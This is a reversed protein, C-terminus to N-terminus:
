FTRFQLKTNPICVKTTSQDNICSPGILSEKSKRSDVLLSPLTESNPTTEPSQVSQFRWKLLSKVSKSIVTSQCPLKRLNLNIGYMRIASDPSKLFILLESSKKRWTKRISIYSSGRGNKVSNSYIAGKLTHVKWPLRSPLNFARTPDLTSVRM